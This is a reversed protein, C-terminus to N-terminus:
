QFRDVQTEVYGAVKKWFRGVGDSVIEEPREIATKVSPRYQMMKGFIGKNQCKLIFRSASLPDNPLFMGRWHGAESLINSVDGGSIVRDWLTFQEKKAPILRHRRLFDLNDYEQRGVPKTFLMIVGGRKQPTFLSKFAQESPKTIEMSLINKMFLDDYDNVTERDSFATMLRVSPYRNIEQLFKRTHLTSRSVVHFTFRRENKQLLKILESLYVTGVAAGSIPISLDIETKSSPDVQRIKKKWGDQNLVEDLLPNLPYAVVQFNGPPLGNRAGYRILEARTKESPVFTIDAGPVFWMHQPSDDTVQLVLIVRVKYKKKLDDKLVSLEHALGFHTAIILVTKPQDIRQDLIDVLKRYLTSNKRQLFTRYFYTFVDEPIGNQMYEMFNRGLPHISTLRHFFQISRDGSGLLVPIVGRPLGHYLTDSVRLHGLGAPAYTFIVALSRDTLVQEEHTM